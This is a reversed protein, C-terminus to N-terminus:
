YYYPMRIFDLYNQTDSNILSFFIFAGAAANAVPALFGSSVM